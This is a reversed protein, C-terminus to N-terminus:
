NDDEGGLEQLVCVFKDLLLDVGCGDDRSVCQGALVSALKDRYTLTEFVDLQGRRDLEGCTQYTKM